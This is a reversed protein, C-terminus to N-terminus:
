SARTGEMCCGRSFHVAKVYKINCFYNNYLIFQFFAERYVDSCVDVGAM